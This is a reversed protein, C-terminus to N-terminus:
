KKRIEIVAVPAAQVNATFGSTSSDCASASDDTVTLTVNYVGHKVYAHKIKVGQAKNGDGFDWFYILEDGDPDYSSSADFLSEKGECCVLNPGADAVPPTNVRIELADSGTSCPLNRQDDVTVKVEYRGGQSYKHTVKAKGERVTGDGFDWFYRLSDNNPDKAGSADFTFTDDLCGLEPGKLIVSPSSNINAMVIDTAKSCSTNKGDDVTFAVSYIGGKVYVHETSLGEASKGSGFNWSYSCKRCGGESSVSGDFAVTEGECAEIDKGADVLPSRNLNVTLSDSGSSCNTGSSDDVKLNVTYQGGTEYVHRTVKDEGRSDDGFDWDYILRDGDSDSSEGANFEVRYEEDQSQLCLNVDKGASATPPTNVRITKEIVDVSCPTGLGDDVALSINYVGGKKYVKKVAKGVDSTGDGFDWRYVMNGPTEDTTSSADMVIQQQICSADKVTFGAEPATNVFVKQTIQDTNCDLDSDDVVSLTVLYEGGEKYMHTAIPEVSTSGDGFDWRFSLNQDDPDYSKTADFIFKNCKIKDYKKRVVKKTKTKRKPTIKLEAAKVPKVPTSEAVVPIVGRKRFYIPLLNGKGDKMKLGAHASRQTGKTIVYKFRRSNLVNVPIVTTQWEGSRSDGINYKKRLFPDYLASTGGRRDIDYNEVVIERTGAPVYPYFYMKQGERPALRMTVNYVYAEASEPSIKLKFLNADDGELGRVKIKFRYGGEIKEGETKPYPGFTFYSFDYNDKGFQEEDLIEKGYVAFECVTDWPNAADQKWDRKGGTNPDFIRITLDELEEEPIDLYVELESDEAGMLSDGEPGFVYFYKVNSRDEPLRYAQASGGALLLFVVVVSLARFLNRSM